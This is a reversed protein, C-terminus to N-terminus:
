AELTIADGEVAVVEVTVAVEVECILSPFLVTDLWWLECVVLVDYWTLVLLVMVVWGFMFSITALSAM